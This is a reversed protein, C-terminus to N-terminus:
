ACNSLVETWTDITSKATKWSKKEEKLLGPMKKIENYRDLGKRFGISKDFHINVANCFIRYSPCDIHETRELALLLYALSITDKNEKLFQEIVQLLEEKDGILMERLPRLETKKQGKNEIVYRLTSVIEKWLEESEEAISDAFENWSKKDESGFSTSLAVLSCVLNRFTSLHEYPNDKPIMLKPLLRAIKMYGHDIALYYYTYIASKDGDAVLQYFNYVFDIDFRGQAIYIEKGLKWFIDLIGNRDTNSIKELTLSNPDLQENYKIRMDEVYQEICMRHFDPDKLYEMIEKRHDELFETPVCRLLLEKIEAIGSPSDPRIEWTSTEEVRKVFADYEAKNASVEHKVYTNLKEKDERIERKVDNPVYLKRKEM